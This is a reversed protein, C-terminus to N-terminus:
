IDSKEEKQGELHTLLETVNEFEEDKLPTNDLEIVLAEKTPM